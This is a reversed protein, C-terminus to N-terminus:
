FRKHKWFGARHSVSVSFGTSRKNRKAKSKDSAMVDEVKSVRGRKGPPKMHIFGVGYNSSSANAIFNLGTVAGRKEIAEVQSLLSDIENM